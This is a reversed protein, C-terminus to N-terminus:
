RWEGQLTFPAWYYPSAFRKDNMLSMQAARLAAAPRLGEKLMGQYFRVMLETTGWDSVAWLSVVVRPAGAYMFGRTLSVLGEGRITKGVGTQCASLVVVEAPLKLNFLEHARLFGDQAEGRENVLSFVVGSLEPHVSNLFGHTSFHVYRYQGLEASTVTDRSAAFDLALRRDMAPAMAVIQEAEKRTGPLRPVYLGDNAVGTDEAAAKVLQRDKSNEDGAAPKNSPKVREDNKMFVPDALAVVSKPAIQRGAVEKRVVALTSASPLNVIEHDIILPRTVKRPRSIDSGAGGSVVPLVGFPVFHLAGDAVIILRRNGLRGAVPALVMRSLSEAALPMEGDAQAIRREREENTEGKVRLNRANLLEYYRRAATEIEARKPLEYSTISNSTVLWLYSREEGLSYELLFTEDDLVTTQIAKLTLPQPQMLAAYRPSTQRIETEVKELDKILTEIEDAIATAQTESHPTSLLLMQKQASANLRRQIERERQLLLPDIGQRIDANAETLTDLLSRARARESTELAKRDNAEAPHQKHLSMLLDIYFDYYDQSGEFYSVRLGPNVVKTRLSEVNVIASEITTRAATLNGRNREVIAIQRLILAENQRDGTEHLLERAQTCYDFGKQYDHSSVYSVCLGELAAGEGYRQHEDRFIPLAQEYYKIAKPIELDFSHLLGLALLAAAEGLPFHLTQYVTVARELSERAKDPQGMEAYLPGIATLIAAEGQPSKTARFIELVKNYYSILEEPKGLQVHLSGLVSLAVMEGQGEDAGHFLPLAKDLADLAKQWEGLKGHLLGLHLLAVAEIKPQGGARALVLAQEYKEIAKQNQDLQSHAYGILVLVVAEGAPINLSHISVRASECTDLAKTLSPPSGEAVLQQCELMLRVAADEQTKGPDQAAITGAMLVITIALFLSRHFTSYSPERSEAPFRLHM